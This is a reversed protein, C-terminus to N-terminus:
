AGAPAVAVFLLGVLVLAPVSWSIVAAARAARRSRDVAYRPPPAVRLEDLAARSLLLGFPFFVSAWLAAVAKPSTVPRPAIVSARSLQRATGVAALHRLLPRPRGPRPAAALCAAVVLGGVPAAWTRAAVAVLATQPDGASRGAILLLALELTSVCVVLTTVVAVMSATFRDARALAATFTGVAACALLAIVVVTAVAATRVPLDGVWSVAFYLGLPLALVLVGQVVLRRRSPRRSRGSVEALARRLRQRRLVREAERLVHEEGVDRAAQAADFAFVAVILALLPIGLLRVYDTRLGGQYLQSAASWLGVGAVLPVMVSAVTVLFMRRGSVRRSSGAPLTTVAVQLAVALVALFALLELADRVGLVPPRWAARPEDSVALWGVWLVFAGVVAAITMARVVFRWFQRSFEALGETAELAVLLTPDAPAPGAPRTRPAPRRWFRWM